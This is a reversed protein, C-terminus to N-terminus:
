RKELADSYLDIRKYLKPVLGPASQFRRLTGKLPKLIRSANGGFTEGAIGLQYKEAYVEWNEM